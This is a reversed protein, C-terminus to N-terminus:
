LGLRVRLGQHVLPAHSPTAEVVAEHDEEIEVRCSDVALDLQIGSGAIPRREQAVGLPLRDEVVLHQRFELSGVEVASEQNCHLAHIGICGGIMGGRETAGSNEVGDDTQDARWQRQQQQDGPGHEVPQAEAAVRGKEVIGRDEHRARRGVQRSGGARQHEVAARRAVRQGRGHQIERRAVLNRKPGLDM